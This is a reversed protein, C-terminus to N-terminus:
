TSGGKCDSPASDDGPVISKLTSVWQAAEDPANEFYLHFWAIDSIASVCVDRLGPPTKGQNVRDIVTKVDEKKVGALDTGPGAVPAAAPRTVPQTAPANEPAGGAGAITEPGLIKKAVNQWQVDFVHKAVDLEQTYAARRAPDPQDFALRMFWANPDRPVSKIVENLLLDANAYQGAAYSQVAYDLITELRPLAGARDCVVMVLGYWDLSALPMGAESLQRALEELVAPQCPNSLVMARLVEIRELPSGQRVVSEYRMRLAQMNLPDLCLAQTIMGDAEADSRQALLPVCLVAAHAKVEPPLSPMALVDRLYKIRQDVTEMKSLYRDILEAQVVQDEPWSASKAAARYRTLAAIVNDNAGLQRWTEALLRPYSPESPDLDCAAQLLAAGQEWQHVGPLGNHLIGEAAEVFKAALQVRADDLAAQAM